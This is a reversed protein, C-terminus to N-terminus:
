YRVIPGSIEGNKNAPTHINFYWRGDM